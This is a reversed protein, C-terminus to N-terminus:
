KESGIIPNQLCKRFVLTAAVYIHLTHLKLILKLIPHCRAVSDLLIFFKLVDRIVKENGRLCMYMCVDCVRAM